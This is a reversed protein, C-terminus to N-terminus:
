RRDFLITLIAVMSVFDSFTPHYFFHLKSMLKTNDIVLQLQLKGVDQVSKLSAINCVIRGCTVNPTSCNLYINDAIDSEPMTYFDSVINDKNESRSLDTLNFHSITDVMRNSITNNEKEIERKIRSHNTMTELNFEDKFYKKNNAGNPKPSAPYRTFNQM